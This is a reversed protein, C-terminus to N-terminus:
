GQCYLVQRALEAEPTKDPNSIGPYKLERHELGAALAADIISGNMPKDDGLGLKSKLNDFM